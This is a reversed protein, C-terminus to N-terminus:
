AEPSERFYEYPSVNAHQLDHLLVQYIEEFLNQMLLDLWWFFVKVKKKKM